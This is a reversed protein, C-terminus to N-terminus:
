KDQLNILENQLHKGVMRASSQLKENRVIDLVCLGSCCLMLHQTNDTM